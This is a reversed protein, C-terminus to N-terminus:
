RVQRTNLVELNRDWVRGIIKFFYYVLILRVLTNQALTEILIIMEMHTHDM